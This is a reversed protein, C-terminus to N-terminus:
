LGRATAANLASGILQLCGQLDHAALAQRAQSIQAILPSTDPVGTTGMPVSRDLLRTQAMELSSEAEALRGTAISGQAARLYDSARAGQAINPEPLPTLVQADAAVPAAALLAVLILSARM